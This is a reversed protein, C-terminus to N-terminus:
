DYIIEGRNKIKDLRVLHRDQEFDTGLFTYLCQLAVECSTFKSGVVLVNADNHRRALAVQEENSCLAARIHSFRNAAISMGIGSNCILVGRSNARKVMESILLIAYDPYDVRPEESYTGLDCLFGVGQYNDILFKKLAFGTHDAAFLLSFTDM